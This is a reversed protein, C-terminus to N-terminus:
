RSNWGNLASVGPGCREPENGSGCCISSSPTANRSGRGFCTPGMIVVDTTMM